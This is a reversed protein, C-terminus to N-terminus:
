KIDILGLEHSFSHKHHAFCQFLWERNPFAAYLHQIFDLFSDWQFLTRAYWTLLLRTPSVVIGLFPVSYSGTGNTLPYGSTSPVVASPTITAFSEITPFTPM